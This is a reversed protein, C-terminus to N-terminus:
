INKCHQRAKITRFAIFLKQQTAGDWNDILTQFVNADNAANLVMTALEISLDLSSLDAFGLVSNLHETTDESM